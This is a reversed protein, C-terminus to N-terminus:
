APGKVCLTGAFNYWQFFTEVIEFGSRRFLALNEDIRYPVLVNELAERKRAIALESYANRRKLDHYLEVFWPHVHPDTPLVKETVLLAGRPRLREHIHRVLRERNPPRVFQLTWCLTVVSADTLDLTAPDANLDAWRLEIADECRLAKVKRAAQELMPHADDYGVLRVPPELARALHVLTTATSCGLDYARTGPTWFRAALEAVMAQQELYLPVSRLVMDDFVDAVDADFAFDGRRSATWDFLRDEAM